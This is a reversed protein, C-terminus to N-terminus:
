MPQTKEDFSNGHIYSAFNKILDINHLGPFTHELSIAYIQNNKVASVNKLAENAKIKAILSNTEDIISEHAIIIDPNEKAVEDWDRTVRQLPYKEFINVGKAIKLLYSELGM